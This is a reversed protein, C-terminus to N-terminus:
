PKTLKARQGPNLTLSITDASTKISHETAKGLAQGEATTLTLQWSGPALSVLLPKSSAKRCAIELSKPKATVDLVSDQVAIRTVAIMRVIDFTDIQPNEALPTGPMPLLYNIPVSEPPPNLNALQAVMAARNRRPLWM